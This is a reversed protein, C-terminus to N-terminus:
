YVEDENPIKAGCNRCKRRHQKCSEGVARHLQRVLQDRADDRIYGHQALETLDSKIGCGEYFCNECSRM